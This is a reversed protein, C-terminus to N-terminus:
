KEKRTKLMKGLLSQLKVWRRHEMMPYGSYVGGSEKISKTVGTRATFTTFPAIELHDTFATQGSVVCHHGLITSGGVGVQAVLLSHEGIDCNHGIHVNNDIKTGKRVRTSAFVGRDISCNSGIEVDDGIEVDGNQYIKVHEGTPTHAYGFGDAGITTGGHIRCNSGVTCDRYVTVNPFIVTNDGIRVGSGLYAGAMITSGEGVTVGNELNARKDVISRDGIVPLTSNSGVNPPSFLATAHAMSLAVNECVIAQMGEPVDDLSAESVLVAGAASCRLAATYKIDNLFSLESNLADALTNMGTIEIDSGEFLINLSQAIESLRV